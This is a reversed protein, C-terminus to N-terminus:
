KLAQRAHEKLYKLASEIGEVNDGLNGLGLNCGQCLLGRVLGTVHDHDVVSWSKKNCIKCKGNQLMSLQDIQESTLGYRVFRRGGNKAEWARAKDIYKQRNNEYHQKRYIKHCEKCTNNRKKGKVKWYFDEEEKGLNCKICIKM